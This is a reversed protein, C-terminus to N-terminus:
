DTDIVRKALEKDLKQKIIATLREKAELAEHEAGEARIRHSEATTKMQDVARQLRSLKDRLELAEQDTKTPLEQQVASLREILEHNTKQRSLEESEYFTRFQIAFDQLMQYRDATEIVEPDSRVAQLIADSDNATM